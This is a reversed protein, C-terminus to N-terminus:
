GNLQELLKRYEERANRESAVLVGICGGFIGGGVVLWPLGFVSFFSFCVGGVVGTVFMRLPNQYVIKEVKDIQEQLRPVKLEKAM